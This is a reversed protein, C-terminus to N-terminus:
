RPLLDRQLAELAAQWRGDFTQRYLTTGPFWPSCIGDAMWRWEYPCPVLVRSIRGLSARLHVNTNSVAVYDDLLALVGLMDELDENLATLDLIPRGLSKALAAVEGTAPQRQLAVLTGPVERLAAILMEGPVNKALSWAAGRQEAAATGARWTVGLYPPEGAASLAARWREVREPLATLALPPPVTLPRVFDGAPDTHVANALQALTRVPEQMGSAAPALDGVLMLADVEPPAPLPERDDIVREFLGCRQLMGGLRVNTRYTLRAGMSAVQTAYRLFFIEDGFGQERQLTLRLGAMTQPLERQFRRGPYKRHAHAVSPRHGYEAWGERLWGHGLLAGALTLHATASLGAQQDLCAYIRLGASLQGVDTLAGALNEQLKNNEPIQQAVAAHCALAEHLRGQHGLAAGLFTRAELATGDRVIVERCLQEAEAFRGRDILLSALNTRALAYDSARAILSRFEQEAEDFRQLAHLASALNNQPDPAHLDLAHARRFSELAAEVLGQDRQTNGLNFWVLPERPFRASLKTLLAEAEAFRQQLALANASGLPFHVSRPERRAAERFSAHAEQYRGAAFYAQALNGHADANTKAIAAARQLSAIAGPSDGQQLCSIGLLNLADAQAPAVALVERCVREAEAPFGRQHAAFAQQLRTRLWESSM